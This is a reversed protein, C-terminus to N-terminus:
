APTLRCRGVMGGTLNSTGELLPDTEAMVIICGVAALVCFAIMVAKYYHRLNFKFAIQFCTIV